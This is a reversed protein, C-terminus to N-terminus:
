APTAAIHIEAGQNREQVVRQLNLERTGSKYREQEVRQVVKTGNKYWENHWLQEDRTSCTTGGKYWEQVERSTCTTGSKYWEQVVRQVREIRTM